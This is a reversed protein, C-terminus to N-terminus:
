EVCPTDCGNGLHQFGCSPCWPPFILPTRPVYRSCQMLSHSSSGCILCASAKRWCCSEVHGRNGCWHCFDRFRAKKCHKGLHNGSCQSCSPTVDQFPAKYKVCNTLHHHGGCILCLGRKRWCLAESHGRRNCWKCFQTDGLLSRLGSCPSVAGNPTVVPSSSSKPKVASSNKLVSADVSTLMDGDAEMPFTLNVASHAVSDVAADREASIELPFSLSTNTFTDKCVIEDTQTACSNFNTLKSNKSTSCDSDGVTENWYSCQAIDALISYWKGYTRTCATKGGPYITLMEYGDDEVMTTLEAWANLYDTKGQSAKGFWLPLLHASLADIEALTASKSRDPLIFTSSLFDSRVKQIKFQSLLSFIFLCEPLLVRNPEDCASSGTKFRYRSPM